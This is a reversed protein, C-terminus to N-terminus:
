FLPAKITALLDIIVKNYFGGVGLRNRGLKELLFFTFLYSLLIYSQISLYYYEYFDMTLFFHKLNKFHYPYYIM